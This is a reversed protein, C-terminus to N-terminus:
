RRTGAAVLCDRAIEADGSKRSLVLSLGPLPVTVQDRRLPHRMGNHRNTQEKEPRCNQRITKTHAVRATPSLLYSVNLPVSKPPPIMSTVKMNETAYM